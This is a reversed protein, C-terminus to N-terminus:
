DLQAHKPVRATRKTCNQVEASLLHISTIFLRLACSLMDVFKLTRWKQNYTYALVSSNFLSYCQCTKTM